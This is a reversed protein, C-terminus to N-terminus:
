VRNRGEPATEALARRFLEDRIWTAAPHVAVRYKARDENYEAFLKWFQLRTRTALRFSRWCATHHRCMRYESSTVMSPTFMVASWLIGLESPISMSEDRRTRTLLTSISTLSSQMVMLLPLSASPSRTFRGASSMTM